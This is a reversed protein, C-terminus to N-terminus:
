MLQFADKDRQFPFLNRCKETVSKDLSASLVGEEPGLRHLIQGLPDVVMSNGGYEIGTGDTGCRNVGLVYCQNEIARAQLLTEWAHNRKWPWNAVYLLADYEDSKQQRSWVPFRLDYCINVCIQLGNVQVIVRESGNHYVEGEGGYSFLHRKNYSVCHGDPQMWILRNNYMGNEHVLLSGALIIRYKASITRMWQITEGDPAEALHLSKVSFGTTFTEPLLVVQKEGQIREILAEAKKRNKLPDEWFLDWQLVHVQVRKM